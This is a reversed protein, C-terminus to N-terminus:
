RGRKMWEVAMAKAEKRNNAYFTRVTGRIRFSYPKLNKGAPTM